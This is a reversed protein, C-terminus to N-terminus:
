QHGPTRTALGANQCFEHLKELYNSVVRKQHDLDIAFRHTGHQRRLQRHVRVFALHHKPQGMWFDVM